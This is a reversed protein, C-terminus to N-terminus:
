TYTVAGFVIQGNTGVTADSWKPQIATYWTSLPGGWAFGANFIATERNVLNFILGLARADIDYEQVYLAIKLSPQQTRIRRLQEVHDNIIAYTKSKDKSISIYPFSGTRSTSVGTAGYSILFGANFM